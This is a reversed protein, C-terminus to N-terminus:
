SDNDVQNSTPFTLVPNAPDTNNVGDGTIGQVGGGGGGTGLKFFFSSLDDVLSQADLYPTGTGDEFDTYPLNGSLTRKETGLFVIEVNDGGKWLIDYGGRAKQTGNFLWSTDNNAKLQIAM